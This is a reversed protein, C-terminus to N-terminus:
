ALVRRAQGILRSAAGAVADVFPQAPRIAFEGDRICVGVGHSYRSWAPDPTLWHAENSHRCVHINERLM